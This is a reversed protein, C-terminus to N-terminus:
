EFLKGILKELTFDGWSQIDTVLTKNSTPDTSQKKIRGAVRLSVASAAWKGRSMAQSTQAYLEDGVAAVILSNSSTDYKLYITGLKVSEKTTVDETEDTQKTYLYWINGTENLILDTASVGDDGDEGNKCGTTVFTLAFAALLAMLISIKKM